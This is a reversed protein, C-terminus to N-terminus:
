ALVVLLGVFLVWGSYEISQQLGYMAMGVLVIGVVGKIIARM